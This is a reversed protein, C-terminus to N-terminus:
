RPVKFLRMLDALDRKYKQRALERSPPFSKQLRMLEFISEKRNDINKLILKFTEIAHPLNRRVRKLAAERKSSRTPSVGSSRSPNDERDEDGDLAQAAKALLAAASKGRDSVWAPENCAEQGCDAEYKAELSLKNRYYWAASKKERLWEAERYRRDFDDFVFGSAPDELAHLAKKVLWMLRKDSCRKM